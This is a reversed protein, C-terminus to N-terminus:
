RKDVKIKRFKGGTRSAIGRLMREEERRDAGTLYYLAHIRPVADRERKAAAILDLLEDEPITEFGGGPLSRTANGDTLMFAIEPNLEFLAELAYDHRTGGPRGGTPPAKNADIASQIHERAAEKNAETAPVLKERWLRASGSWHIIGFRANVGLGDVLRIAEDRVRQFSQERGTRLLKRTDYDYDGTRGFMSASVDIMIVISEARDEIDFFSVGSGGKGGAGLLGGTSGRGALGTGTLSAVQDAVLEAPDLPIMQDFDVPPLEPLAIEAPRTSVLREQFTPRPTMAEHRAMNMRHEPTQVPITVKRAVRFTAEPERFKRAVVWLGFVALAVVHLILSGVIISTVLGRRGGDGRGRRARRRREPRKGHARGAGAEARRRRGRRRGRDLDLEIM